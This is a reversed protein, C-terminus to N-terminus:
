HLVQDLLPQLYELYIKLVGKKQEIFRRANMGYRSRERENDLLHALTKGLEHNDPVQIIGNAQSLEAVEFAFNETHPGTVICKGLAAPELINHGGRPILSGGMFVLLAEAFYKELEGLTDVIYVDTDETTTNDESHVAINLNKNRLRQAIKKGRHPYRPAVVLLCSKKKLLEIHRALQMEEDNHTSVALLFPRTIKTPPTRENTPPKIAYKLNGATHTCRKDAGISIFRSRDENSRALLLTLNQLSHRYDHKIIHAARTSKKTLRGNIIAVPIKKSTSLLFLTPWIETELILICLPDIHRLFANVCVAYDLPLYVHAVNQARMRTVLRAATPTNTSIFVRTHPYRERLESLMPKVANIEGVSACHILIPRSPFHRYNFGLRQTLYDRGGDKFTRYIVYGLVIPSLLFLISKYRLSTHHSLKPHSLKPM